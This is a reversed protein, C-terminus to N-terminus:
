DLQTEDSEVSEMADIEGYFPILLLIIVEKAKEFVPFSENSGFTQIFDRTKVFSLKANKLPKVLKAHCM